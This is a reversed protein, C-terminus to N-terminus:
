NELMESELRGIDSSEAGRRLWVLYEVNGAPGTIPSQTLGRAGFGLSEATTLVSRVADRRASEDRVVGGKGVHERGAEFQPKILAVVQGNTSLIRSVAPLILGLSIFSVDICVFGVPEPLRELHRANVREMVVVRPDIRLRFDLQNYGVDIAYVRRAGRQLLCDTFGGTSSGIDAAVADFVDIQFTQLAHELKVGGRGVFPLRAELALQESPDLMESAKAIVRTGLRVQGAMILAKAKSRTEALQQKVLLEDARLKRKGRSPNM